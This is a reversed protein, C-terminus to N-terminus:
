PAAGLAASIEVGLEAAQRNAEDLTEGKPIGPRQHGAASLYANRLLQMRRRVLEFTEEAAGLEALMLEPSAARGAADGGLARILSAAIFWHGSASPHVADPQFTFEPTLRRRRKLETAMPGHLDIVQWGEERRSLLWASYAAMVGDYSFGLDKRADDFTPPTVLILEAGRDVVKRRLRQVGARYEGFRKEDLPQYIGCNIGYCAIVLDPAAVQLVRDLREFLDPRPFEGSAHGAESLGSVTESPLGLNLVTPPDEPRQTLLWAEFAAVYDGAYTISDGLMVIRRAQMVADRPSREAQAAHRVIFRVVRDPDPHQFHHGKSEATGEPVSIVELVADLEELRAALLGTNEDPPVVRDNESVVHLLPIGSRAIEDARDVPTMRSALAEEETLEYAELCQRWENPAGAGGGRGGPWSRFDCVPTDCYICAVRDPHALAWNYVFLGGRSVGELAPRDALEFEEVVYQYFADGLAIARPSGFLGAVDVYGIHFGRELLAVDMEAHYNPFRARWVWPRGPAAETPSVVYATRDAVVFDIREFGHWTAEQGGTSRGHSLLLLLLSVCRFATM